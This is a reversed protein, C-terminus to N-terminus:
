QLLRTPEYKFFQFGQVVAVSHQMKKLYETNLKKFYRAPEADPGRDMLGASQQPLGHKDVPVMLSFVMESDESTFCCWM